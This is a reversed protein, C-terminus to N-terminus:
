PKGEKEAPPINATAHRWTKGDPSIAHVTVTAGEAAAGKILARGPALVEVEGRSTDLRLWWDGYPGDEPAIAAVRWNEGDRETEIRLGAAEAEQADDPPPDFLVSLRSAMEGLADNSVIDPRIDNAVNLAAVLNGVTWFLLQSGEGVFNCVLSASRIPIPPIGGISSMRASNQFVQHIHVSGIGLANRPNSQMYLVFSLKHRKSKQAMLYSQVSLYKYRNEDSPRPYITDPKITWTDNPLILHPNPALRIIGTCSNSVNIEMPYGILNNEIYKVWQNHEDENGQRFVNPLPLKKLLDMNKPHKLKSEHRNEMMSTRDETEAILLSNSASNIHGFFFLMVIILRMKM